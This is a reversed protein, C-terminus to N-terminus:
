EITKKNQCETGKTAKVLKTNGPEQEGMQLPGSTLRLSSGEIGRGIKGQM